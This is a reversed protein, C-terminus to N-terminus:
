FVAVRILYLICLAIWPMTTKSILQILVAGDDGEEERLRSMASLLSATSSAVGSIHRMVIVVAFVQWFSLDPLVESLYEGTFPKFWHYAKFTLFNM